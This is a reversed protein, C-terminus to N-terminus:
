SHESFLLSPNAFSPVDASEDWSLESTSERSNRPRLHFASTDIFPYESLRHLLGEDETMSLTSEDSNTTSQNDNTRISLESFDRSPRGISGAVNLENGDNGEIGFLDAESEFNVEMDSRLFRDDSEENEEMSEDMEKEDKRLSSSTLQYDEKDEEGNDNCGDEDLLLQPVESDPTSSLAMLRGRGQGSISLRKLGETSLHESHPQEGAYTLLDSMTSLRHSNIWSQRRNTIFDSTTSLRHQSTHDNSSIKQPLGATRKTSLDNNREKNLKSQALYSAFEPRTGDFELASQQSLLCSLRKVNVITQNGDPLFSQDAVSNVHRKIKEEKMKAYHLRVICFTLIIIVALIISGIVIACFGIMKKLSEDSSSNDLASIFASFDRQKCRTGTFGHFCSCYKKGLTKLFYCTGKNLCYEQRQCLDGHATGSNKAPVVKINTSAVSSNILYISSVVLCEYVGEDDKKVKKINLSSGLEDTLLIREDFSILRGDKSWQIMSKLKGKTKCKIKLKSGEYAKVSKPLWVSLPENCKACNYEEILQVIEKTSPKLARSSWYFRESPLSSQNIFIVYREDAATNTFACSSTKDIGHGDMATDRVGVFITESVRVFKGKYVKVVVVSFNFYSFTTIGNSSNYHVVSGTLRGEVVGESDRNHRSLESRDLSVNSCLMSLDCVVNSIYMFLFPFLKQLIFYDM